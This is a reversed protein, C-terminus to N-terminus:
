GEQPIGIHKGCHLCYLADKALVTGCRPCRNHREVYWAFLTFDPVQRGCSPCRSEGNTVLGSCHPCIKTKQMIKPGFGYHELQELKLKQTM